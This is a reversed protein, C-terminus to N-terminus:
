RAPPRKMARVVLVVGGGFCVVTLLGFFAGAMLTPLREDPPLESSSSYVLAVLAGAACFLGVLALGLAVIISLGKSM